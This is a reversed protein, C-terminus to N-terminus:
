SKWKELIAEKDIFGGKKLQTNRDIKLAILKKLIERLETKSKEHVMKMSVYHTRMELGISSVFKDNRGALYTWNNHSSRNIKYSLDWNQM